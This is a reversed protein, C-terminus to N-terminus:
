LTGTGTCKLIYPKALGLLCQFHVGKSKLFAWTFCVSFRWEMLLFGITTTQKEAEVRVLNDLLLTKVLKHIAM